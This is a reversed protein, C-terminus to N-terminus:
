AKKYVGVTPHLKGNVNPLVVKQGSEKSLMLQLLTANVFPTDCPLILNLENSANQLGTLIGGLPGVDDMEDQVFQFKGKVEQGGNGVVIVESAHIEECLDLM